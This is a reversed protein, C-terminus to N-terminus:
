DEYDEESYDIMNDDFFGYNEKAIGLKKFWAELDGNDMWTDGRIIGPQKFCTWRDNICCMDYFEIDSRTNIKILSEEIIKVQEDTLDGMKLVFSASSSNSVFGQRIKM